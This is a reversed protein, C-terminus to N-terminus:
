RFGSENESLVFQIKVNTEDFLREFGTIESFDTRSLAYVRRGNAGASRRLGPVNM